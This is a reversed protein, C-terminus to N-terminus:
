LWFARRWCNRPPVIGINAVTVCLVVKCFLWQAWVPWCTNVNSTELQSELLSSYEASEANSKERQRKSEGLEQRMEGMSFTLVDRQTCIDSRLTPPPFSVRQMQQVHGAEATLQM